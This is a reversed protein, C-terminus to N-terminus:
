LTNYDSSGDSLEFFPEIIISVQLIGHVDVEQNTLKFDHYYQTNYALFFNYNLLINCIGYFANHSIRHIRTHLTMSLMQLTSFSSLGSNRSRPKECAKWSPRDAATIGGRSCCPMWVRHGAGHSATSPLLSSDCSLPTLLEMSTFM